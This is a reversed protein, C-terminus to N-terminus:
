GPRHIGTPPSVFAAAGPPLVDSVVSSDPSHEVLNCRQGKQDVYDLECDLSSNHYRGVLCGCSLSAFGIMRLLSM